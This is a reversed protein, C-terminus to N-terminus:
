PKPNQYIPNLYTLFLFPPVAELSSMKICDKEDQEWLLLLVRRMISREKGSQAVGGVRM